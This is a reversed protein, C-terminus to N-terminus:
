ILIHIDIIIIIISTLPICISSSIAKINADIGIHKISIPQYFAM